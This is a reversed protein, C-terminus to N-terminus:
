HLIVRKLVILLPYNFFLVFKQVLDADSAESPVLNWDENCCCCCFIWKKLCSMVIPIKKRILTIFLVLTLVCFPVLTDANCFIRAIM